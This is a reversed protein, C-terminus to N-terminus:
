KETAGRSEFTFGLIEDEFEEASTTMAILKETDSESLREEGRNMLDYIDIMTQHYQKESAIKDSNIFM